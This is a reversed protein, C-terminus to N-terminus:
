ESNKQKKYKHLPKCFTKIRRQSLLKNANIIDFSVKICSGNNEFELSDSLTQVISLGNKINNNVLMDTVEPIPFSFGSGEDSVTFLLKGSNHQFHIIVKKETANKNGHIIANKVLEVLSILINSFYTQGINYEDSIKEVFKELKAFEEFSSQLELTYINETM